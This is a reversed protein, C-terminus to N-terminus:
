LIICGCACGVQTNEIYDSNDSKGSAQSDSECDDKAPIMFVRQNVMVRNMVAPYSIFYETESLFDDLSDYSKILGILTRSIHFTGRPDYNFQGKHTTVYIRGFRKKRQVNVVIKDATCKPYLEGVDMERVYTPLMRAGPSNLDGVIFYPTTVNVIPLLTANCRDCKNDFMQFGFHGKTPDCLLIMKDNPADSICQDAFWYLLILGHRPWPQGFGSQHLESVTKIKRMTAAQHISFSSIVDHM